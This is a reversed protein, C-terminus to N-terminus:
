GKPIRNLMANLGLLDEKTLTVGMTGIMGSLRLLTFGNLMGMM